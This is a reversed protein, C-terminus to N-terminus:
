KSPSSPPVIITGIEMLKKFEETIKSTLNLSIQLISPNINLMSDVGGLEGIVPRPCTIMSVCEMGEEGALLLVTFYKPVVFLQGAKVEGDFALKGNFGGVQVSGSGKSVYYVRTAGDGAYNPARVAGNQLVLRTGSLGVEELLPFEASTMTACVGGNEVAVDPPANEINKTWNNNFDASNVPITKAQDEGLKVILIGKQRNFIEKAKDSNIGFSKGILDPSFATLTGISGTLLFYTIEGPFCAKTTEGIFTIVLKTPGHNYWWSASGLPIPIIDGKKLGIYTATGKDKRDPFILGAGGNEGEVVFGIKSCDAYHPFVFGQPELVLKGAAVKAQGLAASDSSSWNYYGGGEGEFFTQPFKPSLDLGM